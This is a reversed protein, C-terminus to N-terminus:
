SPSRAPTSRSPALIPKAKFKKLFGVPHYSLKAKRLNEDDLDQERNVLKFRNGTNALFMQNIAQYSGKIEPDGKEFHILLMEPTLPEAITYAVLKEGVFIAGGELAEFKEWNKFVREIARNEYALAESSECDRWTCWDAQMALAEEILEPGLPLYRFDNNRLFQNLLNKKKHFRNGKLEVLESLEYLYDWQGRIEETRLRRGLESSWTGALKDPIRVFETDKDLVPELLDKWALGEWSGVPSWFAEVPLTQRIWVLRDDWAWELGYAEAWGWLNVMSYDSTKEPMMTLRELYADQKELASPRDIPEFHLAM